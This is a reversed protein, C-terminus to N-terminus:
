FLYDAMASLRIATYSKSRSFVIKRESTIEVASSETGFMDSWKQDIFFFRLTLSIRRQLGFLM